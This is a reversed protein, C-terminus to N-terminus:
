APQPALGPTPALARVKALLARKAASTKNRIWRKTDDDDFYDTLVCGAVYGGAFLLKSTWNPRGEGFFLAEIFVPVIRSGWVLLGSSLLWVVLGFRRYSWSVYAGLGAGAIVMCAYYSLLQM